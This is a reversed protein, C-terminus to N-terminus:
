FPLDDSSSVMNGNHKLVLDPRKSTLDVFAEMFKAMYKANSQSPVEKTFKFGVLVGLPATDADKTIKVTRGDEDIPMRGYVDILDGGKLTVDPEGAKVTATYEEGEPVCLTYIRQMVGEKNMDAKESKRVLFGRCKDGVTKLNFYPNGKALGAYKDTFFEDEKVIQDKSM